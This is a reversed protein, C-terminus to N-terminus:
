FPGSGDLARRNPAANRVRSPSSRESLISTSPFCIRSRSTSKQFSPLCVTASQIDVM